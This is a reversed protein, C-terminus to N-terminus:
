IWSEVIVPDDAPVRPICTLGRRRLPERAGELTNHASAETSALVLGSMLGVQERVVFMGPHDRPNEYIVFLHVGKQMEEPTPIPGTFAGTALFSKAM